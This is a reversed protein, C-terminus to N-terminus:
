VLVGYQSPYKKFWEIVTNRKVGIYNVYTDFNDFPGEPTFVPVTDDRLHFLTKMLEEHERKTRLSPHLEELSQRAHHDKIKQHLNILEKKENWAAHSDNNHQNYSKEHSAANFERLFRTEMKRAITRDGVYLLRREWDNPSLKILSKVIKSSCIYGDDPHCGNATRSGIYWHYTKNHRWIYVFGISNDDM